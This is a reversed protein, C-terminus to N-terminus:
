NTINYHKKSMSKTDRKIRLNKELQSQRYEDEAQKFIEELDITDHELKFMKVVLLAVLVLILIKGIMIM